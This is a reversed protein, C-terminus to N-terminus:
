GHPEWRPEWGGFRRARSITKLLVRSESGAVTGVQVESHGGYVQDLIMGRMDRLPLPRAALDPVLSLAHQTRCAPGPQRTSTGDPYAGSRGTAPGPEDSLPPPSLPTDLAEKSPALTRATAHLSGQLRTVTM